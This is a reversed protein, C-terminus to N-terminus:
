GREPPSAEEACPEDAEADLRRIEDYGLLHGMVARRLDEYYADHDEYYADHDDCM